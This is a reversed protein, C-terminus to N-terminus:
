RETKAFGTWAFCLIRAAQTFPCLLVSYKLPTRYLDHIIIAPQNQMETKRLFVILQGLLLKAYPVTLERARQTLENIAFM